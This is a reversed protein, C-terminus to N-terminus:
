QKRKEKEKEQDNINKSKSKSKSKVGKAKSKKSSGAKYEGDEADNDSSEPSSPPNDDADSESEHGKDSAGAESGSANGDEEGPDKKAKKAAKAAKRVAIEARKREKEERRRAKDQAKASKAADAKAKAKAKKSKKSSFVDDDDSDDGWYRSGENEKESTGLKVDNFLEDDDEDDIDKVDAWRGTDTEGTAAAAAADDDDDDSNGADFNGFLEDAQSLLAEHSSAPILTQSQSQSQFQSAVRTEMFSFVTQDIADRLGGHGDSPDIDLQLCVEERWQRKTWQECLDGGEEAIARVAHRIQNSDFLPPKTRSRSAISAPAPVPAPSPASIPAPAAASAAAASAAEDALSQMLAPTKRMKGLPVSGVRNTPKTQAKPKSSKRGTSKNQLSAVINAPLAGLVKIKGSTNYVVPRAVASEDDGDGDAEAETDSMQMADDDRVSPKTPVQVQTQTQQSKEALEEVDIDLQTDIQTAFDSGGGSNGASFFSPSKNSAGLGASNEEDEDDSLLGLDAGNDQHASAGLYSSKFNSRGFSKGAVPMAADGKGTNSM